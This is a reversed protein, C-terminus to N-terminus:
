IVRESAGTSPVLMHSFVYVGVWTYVYIYIYACVHSNISLMPVVRSGLACLLIRPPM